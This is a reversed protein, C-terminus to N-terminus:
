IFLVFTTIGMVHGTTKSKPSQLLCISRLSNSLIIMFKFLSENFPLKHELNYINEPICGCLRKCMPYLLEMVYM